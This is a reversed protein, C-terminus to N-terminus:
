NTIGSIGRNYKSKVFQIKSEILIRGKHFQTIKSYRIDVLYYSSPLTVNADQARQAM